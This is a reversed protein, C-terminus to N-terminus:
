RADAVCRGFWGGANRAAARGEMQVRSMMEPTAETSAAGQPAASAPTNQGFLAKSIVAFAIVAVAVRAFTCAVWSQRRIMDSM